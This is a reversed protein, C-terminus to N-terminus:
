WRKGYWLLFFFLLLIGSRWIEGDWAIFCQINPALLATRATRATYCLHTRKLTVNSAVFALYLRDFCSFRNACQKGNWLPTSKNNNNNNNIYREITTNLSTTPGILASGTWAALAHIILRACLCITCSESETLSWAIPSEIFEVVSFLHCASVCYVVLFHTANLWGAHSHILIAVWWVGNSGINLM